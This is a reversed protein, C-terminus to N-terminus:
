KQLNNGDTFKKYTVVHKGKPNWKKIVSGDKEVRRCKNTDNFEECLKGQKASWKGKRKGKKDSVAYLTGNPDYYRKFEFDKKHHYGEATKGSFAAIIEDESMEGALAPQVLFSLVAFLTIYTYKEKM